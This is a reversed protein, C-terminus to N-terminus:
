SYPLRATDDDGKKFDRGVMRYRYSYVPHAVSPDPEIRCETREQGDLPRVPFDDKGFVGHNLCGNKWSSLRASPFRSGLRLGSAGLYHRANARLRLDAGCPWRKRFHEAEVKGQNGVAPQGYEM